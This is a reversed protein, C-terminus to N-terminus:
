KVFEWKKKVVDVKLKAASNYLEIIKIGWTLKKVRENSWGVPREIQIMAQVGRIKLIKMVGNTGIKFIDECSEVVTQRQNLEVAYENYSRWVRRSERCEWFLHRYTEVEGCRECEDDRSMRFRFMREKTYFDRTILRYYIHRLKINKCQQRFLGIQEKGYNDFGLGM